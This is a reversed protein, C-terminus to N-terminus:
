VYVEAIKPDDAPERPIHVCGWPIEARAEDITDCLSAFAYHLIAGTTSATQKGVVWHNPYDTPHDYIVYIDLGITKM